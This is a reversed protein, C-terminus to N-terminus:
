RPSGKGTRNLQPTALARDVESDTPERGLTKRLEAIVARRQFAADIEADTPQYGPDTPHQEKLLGAMEDRTLEVSPQTEVAPEPKHHGRASNAIGVAGGTVGGIVLGSACGIATGLGGTAWGVPGGILVGTTCGLDAGRVISGCGSTLFLLAPTLHTVLTRTRFVISRRTHTHFDLM